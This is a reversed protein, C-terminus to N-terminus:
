TRATPRATVHHQLSRLFDSVRKNTALMPFEELAKETWATEPDLISRLTELELLERDHLPFTKASDLLLLMEHIRRLVSLASGMQEKHAPDQRWGIGKFVENTVRQGAGHCDYSVCGRFGLDERKDFISCRDTADLNPCVECADKDIGFSESKDFAFVVCCLAACSACDPTLDLSRKM